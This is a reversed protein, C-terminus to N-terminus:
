TRVTQWCLSHVSHVLLVQCNKFRFLTKLWTSFNILVSLYMGMDVLSWVANHMNDTHFHQTAPFSTKLNLFDNPKRACATSVEM